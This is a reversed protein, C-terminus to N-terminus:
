ASAVAAPDFAPASIKHLTVVEALPLAGAGGHPVALDVSPATVLKTLRDLFALGIEPDGVTGADLLPAVIRDALQWGLVVGAAPMATMAWLLLADAGGGAPIAHRKLSFDM